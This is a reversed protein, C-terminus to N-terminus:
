SATQQNLLQKELAIIRDRLKKVEILMPIALKEYKVGEVEGFNNRWTLLTSVTDVDEAILGIEQQTGRLAQQDATWYFTVPNLDYIWSCDEIPVINDKYKKASGSNYLTGNVNSYVTGGSSLSQPVSIYGDWWVQFLNTGSSYRDIHWYKGTSGGEFYFNGWQNEIILGGSPTGNNSNANYSKFFAGSTTSPTLFGNYGGTVIGKSSDLPVLYNTYLSGINLAGYYYTSSNYVFSGCGSDYSAGLRLTYNNTWILYAYNGSSPNFNIQGAMNLIGNINLDDSTTIKNTGGSGVTLYASNNGNFIVHDCYVDDGAYVSYTVHHSGDTTADCDIFCMAAASRYIPVDGGILLGGSSGQTPLSLKGTITTAGFTQPLTGATNTAYVQSGSPSSVIPAFYGNTGYANNEDVRLTIDAYAQQYIYLYYNNSGDNYIAFYSRNSSNDSLAGYNIHVPATAGSRTGAILRTGSSTNVGFNRGDTMTVDVYGIEGSGTSGVINNIKGICLWRASATYNISIVQFGNAVKLGAFTPISTTLLPNSGAITASIDVGDVTYGSGMAVNVNFTTSGTVIGGNWTVNSWTPTNGTGQSTLVQGTQGVNGNLNIQATVGNLVLNYTRVNTGYIDYWRNTSSGLTFTKAPNQPIIGGTSASTDFGLILGSGDIAMTIYGSGVVGMQLNRTCVSNWMKEMNGVFSQNDNVPAVSCGNQFSANGMVTDGEVTLNGHATLNGLDLHAPDESAFKKLFLTDFNGAYNSTPGKDYWHPASGEEHYEYLHNDNTNIYLQLQQHTPPEGSLQDIHDLIGMGSHGLVIKPPDCQWNLGSGLTLVGQNSCIFGGASFDKQVVLGTNTALLPEYEPPDDFQSIIGFLSATKIYQTSTDKFTIKSKNAANEPLGAPSWIGNSWGWIDGVITAKNIVSFNYPLILSDGIQLALNDYDDFITQLDIQDADANEKITLIPKCTLHLFNGDDVM